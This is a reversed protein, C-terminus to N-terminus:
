TGFRKYLMEGALRCMWAPGRRIVPSILTRNLMQSLRGSPASPFYAYPLRTEVSNWGRKFVRLGPNDVSTKGFDFSAAGRSSAEVMTDWLMLHNPSRDLFQPDSAGYKYTLTGRYLCFVAASMPHSGDGTVAVFGLGQSVIREHFREFYRRPQIPVGQRRRTALHLRYFTSMGEEDSRFETHLGAKQGKRIPSRVREKFSKLLSEPGPRLDTMHLWREEDHVFGCAEPVAARIEIDAHRRAAEARVGEILAQADHPSSALPGCSDSFPLSHLRARGFPTSPALVCIPLGAVIRESRVLCIAATEFGYQYALLSVWAPDHFLTSDPHGAVFAQWAPDTAADLLAVRTASGQELAVNQLVAETVESM